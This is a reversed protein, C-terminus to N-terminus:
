TLLSRTVASPYKRGSKPKSEDVEAPVLDLFFLIQPSEPVQGLQRDDVQHAIADQLVELRHAQQRGM